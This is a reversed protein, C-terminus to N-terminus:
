RDSSHVKFTLFDQEEELDLELDWEELFILEDLAIRRQGDIDLGQFLMELESLTLDVGDVSALRTFASHFERWTLDGSKSDDLAEMMKAMTKFKSRAWLKFGAVLHFATEDFEKISVWGSINADLARWMAPVCLDTKLRRCANQFETWNVRMSSDRDLCKRWATIPNGRYRRLLGAKLKLWAEEDAKFYLYQPPDWKDLWRVEDSKVIGKGALDLCQFVLKLKENMFGYKVCANCFEENSLIGNRDTDMSIFAEKMSGFVKKAWHKFDAVEVVTKPALECLSITGSHDKDLRRWLQNADGPFRVEALAQFFEKRSVAGSKDRDLLLVWGRVLNGYKRILFERFHYVQRAGPTMAKIAEERRAMM